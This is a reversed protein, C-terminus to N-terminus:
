LNYKETDKKIYFNQIEDPSAKRINGATLSYVMQKNTLSYIIYYKDKKYSIKGIDNNNKIIVIDNNKYNRSIKTKQINEYSKIHKM